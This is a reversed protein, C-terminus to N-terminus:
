CENGGFETGFKFEDNSCYGTKLSSSIQHPLAMVMGLGHAVTADNTTNGEIPLM